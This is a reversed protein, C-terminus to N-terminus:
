SAKEWSEPKSPDGGKFRYGRIITGVAPAKSKPKRMEGLLRKEEARESELEKQIAARETKDFTANFQDSLSKIRNQTVRVLTEPKTITEKPETLEKAVHPGTQLIRRGDVTMIRPTWPIDATRQTTPALTRMAAAQAAPANFYMQPVNKAYAQLFPVGRQIDGQFALMGQLRTARELMASQQSPPVSQLIERINQQQEEQQERAMQDATWSTLPQPVFPKGGKIVISRGEIPVPGAVPEKWQEQGIEVPTSINQRTRAIGAAVEMPDAAEYDAASPDDEGPIAREPYRASPATYPM